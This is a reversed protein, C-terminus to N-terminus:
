RFAASQFDHSIGPHVDAKHGTYPAMEKEREGSHRQSLFTPSAPTSTRRIALIPALGKGREGSHRQNFSTPSAPTSTQRVYLWHLAM